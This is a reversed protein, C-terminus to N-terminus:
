ETARGQRVRLDHMFRDNNFYNDSLAQTIKQNENKLGWDDEKETASGTAPEAAPETAPEPAPPLGKDM